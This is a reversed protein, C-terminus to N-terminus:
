VFCRFTLVSRHFCCGKEGAPGATVQAIGCGAPGHGQGMISHQRLRARGQTRAADVGAPILAIVILILAGQSHGFVLQRVGVNQFKLTNIVVSLDPQVALLRREAGVAIGIKIYVTRWKQVCPIVFQPHNGAVSILGVTPPIGARSQVTGNLQPRCPLFVNQEVTHADARHRQVRSHHFDTDPGTRGARNPQHNLFKGRNLLFRIPFCDKRKGDVIGTKPCRFRRIQVSAAYLKFIILHGLGEAHARHAPAFVTEREVTLPDDNLPGADVVIVTQQTSDAVGIGHGALHAQQFFRAVVGDARRM